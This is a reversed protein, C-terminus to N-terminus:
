FFYDHLNSLEPDALETVSFFQQNSKTHTNSAISVVHKDNINTNWPVLYIISFYKFFWLVMILHAILLTHIHTHARACTETLTPIISAIQPHTHAHPLLTPIYVSMCASIHRLMHACLIWLLIDLAKIIRQLMGKLCPRSGYQCGSPLLGWHNQRSRVRGWCQAELYVYGNGARKIHIVDSSLVWAQTCCASKGMSGIGLKLTLLNVRMRTISADFSFRSFFLFLPYSSPISSPALSVSFNLRFSFSKM